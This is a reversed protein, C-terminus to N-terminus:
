FIYKLVFNTEDTINSPTGVSVVAIRNDDSYLLKVIEYNRSKCFVVINEVVINEFGLDTLAYRILGVLHIHDGLGMHHQILLTKSIYNINKEFKVIQQVSQM